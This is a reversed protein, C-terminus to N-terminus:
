PPSYHVHQATEHANTVHYTLGDGQESLVHGVLGLDTDIIRILIIDHRTNCHAIRPCYGQEVNQSIVEGLLTVEKKDSLRETFILCEEVGQHFIVDVLEILIERIFTIM